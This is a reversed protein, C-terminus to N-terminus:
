QAPAAGSAGASGDNGAASQRRARGEMDGYQVVLSRAKSYLNRLFMPVRDNGVIWMNLRQDMGAVVQKTVPSFSYRFSLFQGYVLPTFFSTHGTFITVITMPMIVWVETNSVFYIAKAHNTQVFKGIAQSLSNVTPTTTGILNPLIENRTYNLIHLTSFTAYPVLAVSLPASTVWILALMFYQTNEDRVLRQLYETNFQPIGYSKYLIIGYSLLTGYLAKYYGKHGTSFLGFAFFLAAQIVSALNCSM